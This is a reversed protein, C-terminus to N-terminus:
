FDGPQPQLVVVGLERWRAVMSNRDEIVFLIDEVEIGQEKVLLPKLETDHMEGHEVGRMLLNRPVFRDGFLATLQAETYARGCERRATVFLCTLDPVRLLIRYIRAVAAIERDTFHLRDYEARDGSLLHPLRDESHICCGDIDFLVYKAKNDILQVPM